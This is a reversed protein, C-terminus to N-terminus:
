RPDASPIHHDRLSALLFAFASLNVIWETAATTMAAAQFGMRPLLILNGVANFTLALVALSLLLKVKGLALLAVHSAAGLFIAGYAFCVWRFSSTSDLAGELYRGDYLLGLFERSFPILVVLACLAGLSLIATTKLVHRRLLVEDGSAVLASWASLLPLLYVGPLFALPTLPRMSAGYAGLPGEGLLVRVMLVDSHFYLTQALSLLGMPIAVRLFAQRATGVSVRPKPAGERRALWGISVAQVIERVWVLPIVLVAVAGKLPM